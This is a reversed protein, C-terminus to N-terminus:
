KYVVLFHCNLWKDEVSVRHMKVGTCTASICAMRRSKRRSVPGYILAIVFKQEQEKPNKKLFTVAEARDPLRINGRRKVENLILPTTYEGQLWVYDYRVEATGTREIPFDEVTLGDYVLVRLSNNISKWCNSSYDVVMTFLVAFPNQGRLFRDLQDARIIGHQLKHRLDEFMSVVKAPMSGIMNKNM